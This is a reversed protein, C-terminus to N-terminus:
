SVKFPNAYWQHTMHICVMSYVIYFLILNTANAEM